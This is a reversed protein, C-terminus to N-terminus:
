ETSVDTPRQTMIDQYTSGGLVVNMLQMGCCIDLIPKNTELVALFLKKEFVDRRALDSM